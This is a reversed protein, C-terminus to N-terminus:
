ARAVRVTVTRSTRVGARPVTSVVRGPRLRSRVTTVSSRCGARGLRVRAELVPLKRVNPVTCRTPACTGVGAMARSPAAAAPAPPPTETVVAEFAIPFAFTAGPPRPAFDHYTAFVGTWSSVVRIGLTAPAAVGLQDLSGAFGAAGVVPLTAGDAFSFGRGTWTGLAPPLDPGKRGVVLVVKDAGGCVTSGTAANGDTDLYTAVTEDRILGVTESRDGLRPVVVLDCATGLTADVATIEPALGLNGDFPDDAFSQGAPTSSSCAAAAGGSHAAMVAMAAAAVAVAMLRRRAGVHLM